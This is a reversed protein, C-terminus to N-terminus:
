PWEIFFIYRHIISPLKKYFCSPPQICIQLVVVRSYSTLNWFVHFGHFKQFKAFYHLIQNHITGYRLITVVRFQVKNKQWQITKWQLSLFFALIHSSSPNVSDLQPWKCVQAVGLITQRKLVAYLCAM